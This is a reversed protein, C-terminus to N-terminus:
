AKFRGRVVKGLLYGSILSLGIAQKPGLKKGIELAALLAIFEKPKKKGLTEGLTTGLTDKFMNMPLNEMLNLRSQRHAIIQATILVIFGLFLLGAAMLVAAEEPSFRKSLIIFLAFSLFVLGGLVLLSAVLKLSLSLAFAGARNSLATKLNLFVNKLVIM